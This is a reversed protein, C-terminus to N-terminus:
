LRVYGSKNKGNPNTVYKGSIRMWITLGQLETERIEVGVISRWIRQLDERMVVTGPPASHLRKIIESPFHLRWDGSKVYARMCVSGDPDYHWSHMRYDIGRRKQVLGASVGGSAAQKWKEFQKKGTKTKAFINSGGGLTSCHFFEGGSRDTRIDHKLGCLPCLVESPRAQQAREQELVAKLETVRKEMNKLNAIQKEIEEIQEAIGNM